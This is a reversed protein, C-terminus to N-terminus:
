FFKGGSKLVEEKILDKLAKKHETSTCDIIIVFRKGIVDMKEEVKAYPNSTDIRETTQPTQAVYQEDSIEPEAPVYPKLDLGLNSIDHLEFGATEYDKIDMLAVRLLEQDWDGGHRNAALMAATEKEKDWDVERYKIKEGDVEVFGEAVTGTPTPAEYKTEIKVASSEPMVASRQHGSVLTKSRVNFVICGLDGFEHM